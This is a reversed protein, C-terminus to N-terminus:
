VHSGWAHSGGLRHACAEEGWGADLVTCAAGESGDEASVSKRCKCLASSGSLHSLLLQSARWPVRCGARAGLQVALLSGVWGPPFCSCSIERRGLRSCGTPMVPPSPFRSVMGLAPQRPQTDSDLM